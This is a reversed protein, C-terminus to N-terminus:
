EQTDYYEIRIQYPCSGDCINDLRYTMQCEQKCEKEM